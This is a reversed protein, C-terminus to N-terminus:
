EDGVLQEFANAYAIMGVRELWSLGDSYALQLRVDGDADVVKLLVIAAAPLEEPDISARVGLGDVLDGIPAPDAM